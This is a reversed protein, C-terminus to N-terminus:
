FTWGLFSDWWSNNDPHTAGVCYGKDDGHSAVECMQGNKESYGYYSASANKGAGSSVVLSDAYSQLEPLSSALKTANVLSTLRNQTRIQRVNAVGMLIIMLVTLGILAFHLSNLKGLNM